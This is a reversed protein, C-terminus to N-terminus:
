SCCGGNKSAYQSAEEANISEKESYYEVEYEEEDDAYEHDSDFASTQLSKCSLEMRFCFVSEKSFTWDVEFFWELHECTSDGWIDHYSTIVMYVKRTNQIM